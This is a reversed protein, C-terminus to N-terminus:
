LAVVRWGSGGGTHQVSSMFVPAAPTGTERQPPHLTLPESLHEVRRGDHVDAGHLPADFAPVPAVAEDWAPAHRTDEGAEEEFRSSVAPTEPAIPITRVPE